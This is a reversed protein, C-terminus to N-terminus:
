RGARSVRRTLDRPISRARELRPVMRTKWSKTADGKKRGSEEPLRVDYRDLANSNRRVNKYSHVTLQRKTESSTNKLLTQALPNSTPWKVANTPKPHHFHHALSPPASFVTVRATFLKPRGAPSVFTVDSPSNPNGGKLSLQQSM